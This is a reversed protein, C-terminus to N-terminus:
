LRDYAADRENNWLDALVPDTGATLAAPEEGRILKELQKLTRYSPNFRRHLWRQYTAYSLGLVGVAFKEQSM